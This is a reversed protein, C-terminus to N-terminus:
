EGGLDSLRGQLVRHAREGATIHEELPQDRVSALETLVSDITPDGTEPVDVQDEYEHDPADHQTDM